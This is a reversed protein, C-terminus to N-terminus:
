QLVDTSPAEIWRIRAGYCMPCRLSSDLKGPVLAGCKGHWDCDTCAVPALLKRELTYSSM